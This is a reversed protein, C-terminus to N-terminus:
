TKRSSTCTAHSDIPESGPGITAAIATALRDRCLIITTHRNLRCCLVRMMLMHIHLMM